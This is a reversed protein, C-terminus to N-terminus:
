VMGPGRACHGDSQIETLSHRVEETINAVQQEIMEQNNQIQVQFIVKHDVIISGNRMGLIEVDLYGPVAGYVNNMQKKFQAQIELSYYSSLDELSKNYERNTVKVQAKVTVTVN